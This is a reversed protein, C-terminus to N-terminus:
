VQLNIRGRTLTGSPSDPTSATNGEFTVVPGTQPNTQYAAVMVPPVASAHAQGQPSPQQQGSSDGGMFSSSHAHSNSQQQPHQQNATNSSGQEQQALQGSFTQMTADVRSGTTHAMAQGALVWDVRDLKIGQDSLTQMLQETQAQLQALAEPREVVFRASVQGSNAGYQLNIRVSGLTEPNLNLNVSHKGHNAMAALTDGVQRTPPQHAQGPVTSEPAPLRSDEVAATARPVTITATTMDASSIVSDSGSMALADVSPDIVVAADISSTTDAWDVTASNPPLVTDSDDTLPEKHSSSSESSTDGKATPQPQRESALLTTSISVTDSTPDVDRTVKQFTISAEGEGQPLLADHAQTYSDVLQQLDSVTSDLLAPQQASNSLLTHDHNSGDAVTDTLGSVLPSMEPKTSPDAMSSILAPTFIPTTQSPTDAVTLAAQLPSTVFGAKSSTTVRSPAISATAVDTTITGFSLDTPAIPSTPEPTPAVMPVVSVPLFALLLTAFDASQGATDGGPDSGPASKVELADGAPSGALTPTPLTNPLANTLTASCM